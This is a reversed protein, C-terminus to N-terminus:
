LQLLDGAAAERGEQRYRQPDWLDDGGLRGGGVRGQIGAELVLLCVGTFVNASCELFVFFVVAIMSQFDLFSVSVLSCFLWGVFVFGSVLVLYIVM